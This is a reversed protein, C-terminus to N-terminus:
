VVSLITHSQYISFIYLTIVFKLFHKNTTTEKNNTTTKKKFAINTKQEIPLIENVDATVDSTDYHAHRKCNKTPYPVITVTLVKTFTLDPCPNSDTVKPTIM